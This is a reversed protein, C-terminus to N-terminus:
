PTKVEVVAGDFLRDGGELVVMEGAKLGSLIEVKNDHRKGTKVLRLRAIKGEEVVFVSQLQGREMVAAQPLLLALRQGIPFCAKGYMGSRLGTAPPLDVKVVFTRSAPDAVPVIEGVTGALEKQGLADVVVRVHMGLTIEGVQSEPVNAELRYSQPDEITLLPAGPTALTGIEAKKELVVGDIPSRLTAYSLYVEANTVEAQAQTIKALIQRKKAQFSKIMAEARLVEARAAKQKALVTDFEQRSVAKQELMLQYRQLTAEAFESNAEAAVKAAEAATISRDVEDVASRAEDLGAEARRVQAVLDRDDLLILAQGAKVRDGERALVERVYGVVKSSLMTTTRSRITGVVECFESVPTSTLIQATVTTQLKKEPTKEGHVAATGQQWFLIGGSLVGFALLILGLWIQWNKPLKPSSKM